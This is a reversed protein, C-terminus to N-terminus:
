PVIEPLPQSTKEEGGRGSRSQSGGLRRDLRYRPSKGQPYLTFSTVWRWRTSLDLIRPAIGGSGRYTKIAHHETLCLSLNKYDVGNKILYGVEMFTSLSVDNLVITPSLFGKQSSYLLVDFVVFFFFWIHPECHWRSQVPKPVWEVATDEEPILPSLVHLKGNM